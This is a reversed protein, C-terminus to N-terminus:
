EKEGQKIYTEAKEIVEGPLGLMKAINLADKPVSRGPEVPMLRYDMYKGIIDIRKRRNALSLESNLKRFDADALGRVQMNRVKPNNTVTEYHTTLLTIYPKELLFDVISKTLALGEMPNTGSAIEDVMILSRDQARDFIEKLEEMESGFSSLGREVSQSDGILIQIFNSLGIEAKECPVFFGYQTMIPILGSLKLSITKGGMNAGTICTVGETLEMSIPTYKKGQKRLAEEVQLQRGESISIRHEEIINPRTLEHEIAFLAKSLVYDLRGMKNLNTLLRDKHEGIKASLRGRVEDEEEEIKLNLEERERVLEETEAILALAFTVSSYDEAVQELEKISKAIAMQESSKPIVIDFKPTLVIGHKEKIKDRETKQLKRIEVDLQKKRARYTTLKKSYEDYIYFTNIRDKKPDLLNLVESVDLLSFEEPISRSENNMEDAIEMTQHEKGTQEIDSVIGKLSEMYLLLSKVEFLEVITLSDRGARDISGSIDKLCHFIEHIKDITKPNSEAVNKLAQVKDLEENLLEEEGPFFPRTEKQIKKGMPTMINLKSAVFDFGTETRTKINSLRRNAGQQM